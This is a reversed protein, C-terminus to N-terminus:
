HKHPTRHDPEPPHRPKDGDRDRGPEDEEHGPANSIQPTRNPKHGLESALLSSDGAAIASKLAESAKAQELIPALEEACAHRLSANRGIAELLEITDSMHKERNRHDELM